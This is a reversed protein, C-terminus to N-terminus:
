YSATNAFRDVVCKVARQDGAAGSFGDGNYTHKAVCYSFNNKLNDM